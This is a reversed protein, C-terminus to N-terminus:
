RRKGALLRVRTAVAGTAAAQYHVRVRVGPVLFSPPAPQGKPGVFVTGPALQFVYVQPARKGKRRVKGKIVTLNVGDFASVAGTVHGTAIRKKGIGEAPPGPILALVLIAQTVALVRPM